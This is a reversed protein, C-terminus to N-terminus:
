ARRISDSRSEDACISETSARIMRSVMKRLACPTLASCAATLWSRVYVACPEADRVTVAVPCVAVSEAEVREAVLAGPTLMGEVWPSLECVDGYALKRRHKMM